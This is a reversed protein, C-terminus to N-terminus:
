KVVEGKIVIAHPIKKNELKKIITNLRTKFNNEDISTYSIKNSSLIKLDDNYYVILLVPIEYKVCFNHYTNLLDYVDKIHLLVGSKMGSVSVGCALGLATNVNVSPVYHMFDSSMTSYLEKFEPFPTGSFFRYNLDNCLYDWFEKAKVM